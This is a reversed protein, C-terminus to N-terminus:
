PKIAAVLLSHAGQLIFIDWGLLLVLLFGRGHSKSHKPTDELSKLREERNVYYRRAKQLGSGIKNLTDEMAERSLGNINITILSGSLMLEGKQDENLSNQILEQAISKHEFRDKYQCQIAKISDVTDIPYHSVM